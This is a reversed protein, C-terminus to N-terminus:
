SSTAASLRSTSSAATTWVGSSFAWRRAGTFLLYTLSLRERGTLTALRGVMAGFTDVTVVGNSWPKSVAVLNMSLNSKKADGLSAFFVDHGHKLIGCEIMHMVEALLFLWWQGDLTFPLAISRPVRHLAPRLNYPRYGLAVLGEEAAKRVDHNNAAPSTLVRYLQRTREVVAPEDRRGVGPLHHCKAGAVPVAVAIENLQDFKVLCLPCHQQSLGSIAARSEGDAVFNSCGFLVVIPADPRVPLSAAAGPCRELLLPTAALDVWPLLANDAVQQSYADVGTVQDMDKPKQLVAIPFTIDANNQLDPRVNALQAYVFDPSLRNRAKIACADEYASVMVVLVSPESLGRAAAAEAFAAKKGTHEYDSVLSAAYDVWLQSYVRFSAVDRPPAAGAVVAADPPRPMNVITTPAFNQSLVAALVNRANLSSTTLNGDAYPTRKVGGLVEKAVDNGLRVATSVSVRLLAERTLFAAPAAALLEVLTTMQERTMQLKTMVEYLWVEHPHEAVVAAARAARLKRADFDAFSAAASAAASARQAAALARQPADRAAAAAEAAAELELVTAHLEAAKARLAAVHAARTGDVDDADGDDADEHRTGDDRGDDQGGDGGGQADDLVGGSREDGDSLYGNPPARDAADDLDDDDDSLAAPAEVVAAAGGHPALRALRARCTRVHGGLAQPSTFSTRTCHPCVYEYPM